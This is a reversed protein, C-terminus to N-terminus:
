RVHFIEESGGRAKHILVAEGDMMGHVYAEGLLWYGDGKKRLVFPTRGGRLVTVVDGPQVCCPGIGVSGTGIVFFRRKLCSQVSSAGRMSTAREFDFGKKIRASDSARDDDGMTLHKLYDVLIQMDESQVRTGIYTAGAVLTSAIALYLEEQNAVNSHSMAIEKVSILWEHFEEYSNWTSQLCIGTTHLVEDVLIGELLLMNEGFSVDALLSPSELGEYANFLQNLSWADFVGIQLDVRVAWTPFTQADAFVDSRHNVLRLASLDGKQYLAYRTADRLVDPLSKTYDVGLLAAQDNALSTEHDLLGLIAYISDRPETKEFQQIRSLVDSLYQRTSMFRPDPNLLDFMNIACILGANAHFSGPIHM